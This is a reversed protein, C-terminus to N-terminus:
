IFNKYKGFIEEPIFSDDDFKLDDIKCLRAGTM